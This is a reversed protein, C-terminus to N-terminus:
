QSDPSKPEAMTQLPQLLSPAALLPEQVCCASNHQAPLVGHPPSSLPPYSPSAQRENDIIACHPQPHPDEGAGPLRFKQSFPLLSPQLLPRATPTIGSLAPFSNLVEKLSAPTELDRGLTLTISYPSPTLGAM